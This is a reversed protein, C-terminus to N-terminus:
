AGRAHVIMRESESTFPAGDTDGYVEAVTFDCRELLLRLEPLFYYRLRNPAILRKVNGDADIIDYIWEVHLIQAARDLSSLSQLMVLNGTQPDLFRREVTLSDTDETAFAPGANPLDVVLAGGDALGRRLQRLLREQAEFDLFHMLANFSLFMLSFRPKFAYEAADAQVYTIRERMEPQASLKGELQRLMACNNEIGHIHRGERALHVLVRGTGCGVDLIHGECGAALRSYMRLDDIIDATEADYFRAVASYFASM